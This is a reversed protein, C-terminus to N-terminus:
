RVLNPLILKVVGEIVAVEKESCKNILSHLDDNNINGTVQEFVLSDISIHLCECLNVLTNVSMRREGREIQGLFYSSIDLLGSLYERNMGFREREIRIKSGVKLYNVEKQM